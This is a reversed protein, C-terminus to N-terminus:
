AFSLTSGWLAYSVYKGENILVSTHLEIEQLSYDLSRNVFLFESADKQERALALALIVLTATILPLTFLHLTIFVENFQISRLLCVSLLSFVNALFQVRNILVNVHKNTELNKIEFVRLLSIGVNLFFLKQFLALGAAALLVAPLGSEARLSWQCGGGLGLLVVAAALSLVYLKLVRRQAAEFAFNVVLYVVPFIAYSLGGLPLQKVNLELQMALVCHVVFAAFLVPSVRSHKFLNGLHPAVAVTGQPESTSESDESTGCLALTLSGLQLLGAAPFVTWIREAGLWEPLGAGAVLGVNVWFIAARTRVLWVKGLFSSLIITKLALAVAWGKAEAGYAWM